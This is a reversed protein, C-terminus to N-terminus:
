KAKKRHQMKNKRESKMNELKARQDANLVSSIEAKKRKHFEKRRNQLTSTEARLRSEEAAYKENIERIQNVQAPTLSLTETMKQMMMEKKEQRQEPSKESKRVQANLSATGIFAFLATTIIFKKM